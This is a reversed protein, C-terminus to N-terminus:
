SGVVLTGERRNSEGLTFELGGVVFKALCIKCLSM